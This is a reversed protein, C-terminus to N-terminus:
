NDNTLGILFSLRFTHSCTAILSDINTSIIKTYSKDCKMIHRCLMRTETILQFSHLDMQLIQCLGKIYVLGLELILFNASLILM